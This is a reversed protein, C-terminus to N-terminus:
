PVQRAHAMSLRGGTRRVHRGGALEAGKSVGLVVNVVREIEGASPPPAGLWRRLARRALALPAAALVEARLTDGGGGGSADALLAGGLEDLM